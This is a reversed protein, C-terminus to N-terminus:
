LKNRIANKGDNLATFPDYIRKTPDIAYLGGMTIYYHQEADYQVSYFTDFFEYNVDKLEPTGHMTDYNIWISDCDFEYQHSSYIEKTYAHPSIQLDIYPGNDYRYCYLGCNLALEELEDISYKETCEAFFSQLLDYGDVIRIPIKDSDVNRHNPDSESEADEESNDTDTESDKNDTHYKIIVKSDKPFVDGYLYKESGNISVKEVEGEAFEDNTPLVEYEINTFGTSKIKGEVDGLQCHRLQAYNYDIQYGNVLSSTAKDSNTTSSENSVTESSVSSKTENNPKSSTNSEKKSFTHYVIVIEVNPSYKTGEEFKDNGDISISKIDGDDHLFGVILDDDKVLKINTFGDEKLENTMVQYNENKYYSYSHPISISDDDSECSCLCFCIILSLIICIMRKM